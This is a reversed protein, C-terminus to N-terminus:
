SILKFRWSVSRFRSCPLKVKQLSRLQSKKKKKKKELDVEAKKTYSLADNLARM